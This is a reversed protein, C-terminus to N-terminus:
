RDPPTMAHLVASIIGRIFTETGNECPNIAFICVVRGMAMPTECGVQDDTSLEGYGIGFVFFWLLLRVAWACSDINSRILQVLDPDTSFATFIDYSFSWLSNRKM